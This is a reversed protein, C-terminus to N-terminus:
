APLTLTRDAKEQVHRANDPPTTSTITSFLGQAPNAPCNVVSQPALDKAAIKDFWGSSSQQAYM